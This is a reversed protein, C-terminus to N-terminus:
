CRRIGTKRRTTLLRRQFNVSRRISQCCTQLDLRMLLQTWNQRLTKQSPMTTRRNQTLWPTFRRSTEHRSIAMETRM